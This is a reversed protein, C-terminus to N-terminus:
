REIQRARFFALSPYLICQQVCGAPRFYEGHNGFAGITQAIGGNRYGFSGILFQSVAQERTRCNIRSDVQGEGIMKQIPSLRFLGPLLDLPYGILVAM